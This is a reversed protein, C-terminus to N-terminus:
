ESKKARPKPPFYRAKIARLNMFDAIGAIDVDFEEEFKVVADHMEADAKAEFETGDEAAWKGVRTAM